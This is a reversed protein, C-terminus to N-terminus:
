LEEVTVTYNMFTPRIDLYFVGNKHILRHTEPINADASIMEVLRGDSERKILIM